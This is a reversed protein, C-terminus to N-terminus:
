RHEHDNRRTAPQTNHNKNPTPPRFGPPICACLWDKHKFTLSHKPSENDVTIYMYKDAHKVSLVRCLVVPATVKTADIVGFDEDTDADDTHGFPWQPKSCVLLLGPKIADAQMLEIIM